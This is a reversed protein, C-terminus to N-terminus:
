FVKFQVPACSNAAVTVPTSTVLQFTTPGAFTCGGPGSAPLGAFAVNYTQAATSYNCLQMTITVFGQDRCIVSTSPLYGYEKCKGMTDALFIGQIETAGLARKFFEVEDIDGQFFANPASPPEAAAIVLKDVIPLPDATSTTRIWADITIDGTGFNVSPADNVLVRQTTGNFSRARRAKGPNHPPANVDGGAAGAVTEQALTGAPEDLPWWASMNLPPRVCLPCKVVNLSVNGTCGTAPDTIALSITGGSSGWAVDVNNGSASVPSGGSVTWQYTYTSPGVASYNSPNTCAYASGAISVPAL